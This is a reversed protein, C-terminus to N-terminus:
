RDVGALEKVLDATGELGPRTIKVERQQGKGRVVAVNDMQTLTAAFNNVDLRGYDSVVNRIVAAATWEDVGAAQRGASVLQALQRTALAKNPALRKTSVVVQLEDDKCAYVVELTDRDVMLVRSIKDILDGNSGEFGGMDRSVGEGGSDGSPLHPEVAKFGGLRAKLLERLVIRRDDGTLRLAEVDALAQAAALRVADGDMDESMILEEWTFQYTSSEESLNM